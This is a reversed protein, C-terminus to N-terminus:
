YYECFHRHRSSAHAKPPDTKLFELDLRVVDPLVPEEAECLLLGLGILEDDDSSSRSLSSSRSPLAAFSGNEEEQHVITEPSRAAEDRRSKTSDDDTWDLSHTDGIVHQQQQQQNTSSYVDYLDPIDELNRVVFLRVDEISRPSLVTEM